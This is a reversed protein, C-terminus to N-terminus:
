QRGSPRWWLSRQEKDRGHEAHQMAAVASPPALPSLQGHPDDQGRKPAGVGEDDEGDDDRQETDAGSKSVGVSMKGFM